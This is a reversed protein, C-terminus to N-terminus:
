FEPETEDKGALAAHPKGKAWGGFNDTTVTIGKKSTFAVPEGDELAMFLLAMGSFQEKSIIGYVRYLSIYRGDPSWFQGFNDDDNILYGTEDPAEMTFTDDKTQVIVETWASNSLPTEIFAPKHFTLKIGSVPNTLTIMPKTNKPRVPSKQGRLPGGALLLITLLFSLMPSPYRSM